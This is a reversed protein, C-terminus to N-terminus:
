LLLQMEMIYYNVCVWLVKSFAYYNSCKNQMYLQTKFYGM